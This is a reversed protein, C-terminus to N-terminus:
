ITKFPISFQVKTGTQGKSPLNNSTISLLSKKKSKKHYIILRERVIDTSVSKHETYNNTKKLGEILGKGNDSITCLLVKDDQKKFVININGRYDTNSIGHVISNEVLPQVLMPPIELWESKIDSGVDVHYDFKESFNSQLNLYSELAEVENTLPVFDERSNELTLRLLKALNTIYREAEEKKKYVLIKAKNLANFLFHPNMQSRLLRQELSVKEYKNNLNNQRYYLGGVILLLCLIGIGGLLLFRQQDAITSRVEAELKLEKIEEEKKQKEYDLELKSLERELEQKHFTEKFISKQKLTKNANKFDNKKEYGLALYDFAKTLIEKDDKDEAKVSLSDIVESLNIIARDIKGDYIDVYSDNTTQFYNLNTPSVNKEVTYDEFALKSKKYYYLVSDPNSKIFQDALTGYIIPLNDKYKTSFSADIAKKFYYLASDRQNLYTDTYLTAVRTLTVVYPQPIATYVSDKLNEHYYQLAKTDDGMRLHNGALYARIYSKYKYPYKKEFDLSQQLYKVSKKYKKEVFTILGLNFYVGLLSEEDIPNKIVANKYFEIAKNGYFISSDNIAEVRYNNCLVSYYKSWGTLKNNSSLMKKLENINELTLENNVFFDIEQQTYKKNQTNSSLMLILFFFLAYKIM